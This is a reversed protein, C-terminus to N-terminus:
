ASELAFPVSEVKVRNPFVDEPGLPGPTAEGDVALEYWVEAATVASEPLLLPINFLGEPSVDTPGTSASGLATGATAADYFQVSYERAGGLGQGQANLLQGRINITHPPDAYSIADFAM